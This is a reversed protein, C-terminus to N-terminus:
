LHRVTRALTLAYIKQAGANRLTQACANITAGTTMVDDVLLVRKGAIQTLFKKPVAFAHKLNLLREERRMRAQSRTPRVRRLLQPACAIGTLQELAYALWAAQNYRRLILRRWHLPVPIIVESDALLDQGARTLWQAYRSLGIMRDHYKLQHILKGTVEGYVLASRAVDFRPPHDLCDPCLAGQGMSVTFPIGCAACCPDGILHLDGFCASCLHGQAAVPMQCSPCRPPYLHDLAWQGFARVPVRMATLSTM